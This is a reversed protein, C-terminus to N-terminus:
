RPSTVPRVGELEITDEKLNWFARTARVAAARSADFVTMLRGPAAIALATGAQADYTLADAVFERTPRSGRPGAGFYVSGDAQASLLQGEGEPADGTRIRAKVRDAELRSEDLKGLAIHTLRVRGLMELEGAARTMTMSDDWDFLTAGRAASAEPSEDGSPSRDTLVLRGPGPVTYTDAQADAILHAGEVYALQILTAGSPDYRRSEISAPAGADDYFSQGYIEARVLQRDDGELQEPLLSASAIDPRTTSQEAYPTFRLLVREAALTDRQTGDDSTAVAHVSGRADLRGEIDDFTTESTWRADVLLRGTVPDARTFTGPGWVLATRNVGDLQIQRGHISSPGSSVFALTDEAAFLRAVQADVDAHIEDASASIPESRGDDSAYTARGRIVATTVAVETDTSGPKPRRVLDAELVDGSVTSSEQSARVNGTAIVRTPTLESRDAQAPDFRVHLADSALRGSQDDSAVVNGAADLTVPTTDGSLTRVFDATLSDSRISARTDSVTVDGTFTASRLETRDREHVLRMDAHDSWRIVRNEEVGRALGPGALNLRAEDDGIAATLLPVRVSGTDPVSITVVANPDAPDAEFRALRSTAAYSALACEISAGSDQDHLTVVGSDAATARVFLHDSALEDPTEALPRITMQGSWELITEAPDPTAQQDAQRAMAAAALFAPIPMPDASSVGISDFPAGFVPAIADDPLRNDLLRSWVQLRDARLRGAGRMLVVGGEFTTLYLTERPRSPSEVPRPAAHAPQPGPAGEGAPQHENVPPTDVPVPHEAGSPNARPRFVMRRGSLVTLSNIRQEPENFYARLGRGLFDVRESTISVAEDTALEGLMADFELHETQLSAIPRDMNLDIRRGDAVPAFLRVEVGGVLVGREPAQADAPRVVDGSDARVYITEGNDLFYWARPRLVRYRGPELPEMAEALLEAAIRSTDDKDLIRVFLERGTEAQEAGIRTARDDPVTPSTGGRLWATIAIAGLAIVSVAFVGLRVLRAWSGHQRRAPM